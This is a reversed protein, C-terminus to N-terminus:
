WLVDLSSGAALQEVEMACLIQTVKEGRRAITELLEAAVSCTLVADADVVSPTDAECPSGPLSVFYLDNVVM